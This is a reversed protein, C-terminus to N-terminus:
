RYVTTVELNKSNYVICHVNQINIKACRNPFHFKSDFSILCMHKYIIMIVDYIVTDEEVEVLYYVM